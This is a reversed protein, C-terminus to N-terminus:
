QVMTGREMPAMPAEKRQTQLKPLEQRRVMVMTNEETGDWPHRGTQKRADDDGADCYHDFVTHHRRGHWM